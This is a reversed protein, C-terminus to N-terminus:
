NRQVSMSNTEEIVPENIWSTTPFAPPQPHRRLFREPPPTRPRSFAPAPTSFSPHATTTFTSRPTCAAAQIAANAYYWAYFETCFSRAEALSNFVGLDALLFAVPNSSGNDSHITLQDRRINQKEIIGVENEHPARRPQGLAVQGAV